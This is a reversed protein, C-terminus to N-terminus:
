LKDDKELAAVNWDQIPDIIIVKEDHYDGIILEMMELLEEITNADMSRYNNKIIGAILSAFFAPKYQFSLGKYQLRKADNIM